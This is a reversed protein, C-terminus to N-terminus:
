KKGELHGQLAAKFKQPQDLWILHGASKIVSLKIRPVDRVWKKVLLNKFDLFDHDGIIISIPYPQKKFDDLFDWGSKPYTETTLSFVHGKYLARGGTLQPWKGVDYLMRKAFNIRFRSTHEQSTLSPTSRNLGYKDLEQLVQPRNLFAQGASQEMQHLTSDEEPIPNKLYAPALLVLKRVREPYRKAYASALVAGMSHGVITMRDLKLEKRLLELDEIHNNFSILSDPFPSRLSGRQDYLVFHYQSLLDKVAEILGSHEGGWGGHLMVVTDQGSGIESVYLQPSNEWDGTSLFWDKMPPLREYQIHPGTQVKNRDQSHTTITCLLCSLATLITRTTAM